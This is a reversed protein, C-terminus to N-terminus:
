TNSASVPTTDSQVEVVKDWYIGDEGHKLTLSEGIGTNNGRKSFVLQFENTIGKRMLVSVTRPFNVLESTGAALYSMDTHSWHGRAHSDMSPKGNHHSVMIACNHNKALEGLGHRLFSGVVKQDNINANIYHLLPDIILIDPKIDALIEEAVKLFEEGVKDYNSITIFNEGLKSYEDDTLKLYEAIGNFNEMIQEEDNEGNVMVIKLPKVPKLGFFDMGVSWCTSMQQALVSKGIHSAGTFLSLYGRCLWRRGVLNTDDDNKPKMNPTFRLVSGFRKAKEKAFWESYCELGLDVGLLEQKSGGRRVGPLRSLRSPNKNKGDIRYAELSKYVQRVRDDFENRNNADIRVWGHMSKGGSYILASLPLGSENLIAYQEELSGDDFEVLCHRYDIVDKDTIGGVVLPNVCIYAGKSGFIVEGEREYMDLWDDVPKCAGRSIGTERPLAIRVGEGERFCKKFITTVADPLGSPLKRSPMRVTIKTEVTTIKSVSKKRPPNAFASKITTLIEHDSLGDQIARERLTSDAENISYGNDRFQCAANFLSHNRNGESAGFELYDITTKPLNMKAGSRKWNVKWM